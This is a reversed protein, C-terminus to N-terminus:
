EQFGTRCFFGLKKTRHPDVLDATEDGPLSARPSIQDQRTRRRGRKVHRPIHGAKKNGLDGSMEPADRRPECKWAITIPPRLRLTFRVDRNCAFAQPVPM